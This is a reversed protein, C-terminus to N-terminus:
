LRELEDQAEAATKLENKVEFTLFSAAISRALVRDVESDVVGELTVRGREVIIHIPPNVRSGYGIFNSHGYIARALRVRLLEVVVQCSHQWRQFAVRDRAVPSRHRAPDASQGGGPLGRSEQPALTEPRARDTALDGTALPVDAFVRM